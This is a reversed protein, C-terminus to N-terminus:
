STISFIHRSCNYLMVASMCMLMINIYYTFYTLLIWPEINFHVRLSAVLGAADETHGNLAQIPFHDAHCLGDVFIRESVLWEIVMIFLNTM